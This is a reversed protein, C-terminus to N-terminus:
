EPEMFRYTWISHTLVDEGWSVTLDIRVLRKSTEGLFESEVTEVETKWSYEPFDDGFDGSDPAVEDAEAMMYRAMIQQALLPATTEFKAQNALDVSSAQLRFVSTLAVALIILSIMMELLSFGRSNRTLLYMDMM